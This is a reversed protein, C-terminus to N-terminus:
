FDFAFRIGNSRDFPWVNAEIWPMYYAVKTLVEPLGVARISILGVVNPLSANPPTFQVSGGNLISGSSGPSNPNHACFQSRSIGNRYERRNRQKNYALYTKNCQELPM